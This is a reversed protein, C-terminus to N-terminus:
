KEWETFQYTLGNFRYYPSEKKCVFGNQATGVTPFTPFYTDGEITAEIRTIYLKKAYPMFARYLTSGGIIFLEKEESAYGKIVEEVSHVLQCGPAKYDPDKTLVVNLRNPLARGISEFTKRGMILTHGTTLTKFYQLDEPIHWPMSGDKGIVGNRSMAVIMSIM